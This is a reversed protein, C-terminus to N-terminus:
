SLRVDRQEERPASEDLSAIADNLVALIDQFSTELADNFSAIIEERSNVSSWIDPHLREITKTLLEYACLYDLSSYPTERSIAGELCWSTANNCIPDVAAGHKNRATAGKTWCRESSLRQAVRSLAHRLPM